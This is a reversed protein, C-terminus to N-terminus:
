SIERGEVTGGKAKWKAGIPRYESDDITVYGGDASSVFM